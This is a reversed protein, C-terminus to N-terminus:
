ESSAGKENPEDRYEQETAAEDWLVGLNLFEDEMARQLMSRWLSCRPARGFIFHWAHPIEQDPPPEDAPAKRIAACPFHVRRGSTLLILNIAYEEVFARGIRKQRKFADMRCVYDILRDVHPWDSHVAHMGINCYLPKADYETTIADYFRRHKTWKPVRSTIGAFTTFYEPDPHIAAFLPDLRRSVITDIDLIIARQYDFLRLARWRNIVHSTHPQEPADPSVHADLVKVVLRPDAEAAGLDFCEVSERDLGIAVQFSPNPHLQLLSYLSVLLEVVAERGGGCYYYLLDGM